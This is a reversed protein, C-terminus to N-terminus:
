DVAPVERDKTRVASRPPQSKIDAVCYELMEPTYTSWDGELQKGFESKFVGIRYGWSELSHRGYLHGPMNAPRARLDKDLMDNFFLRSLILTDYVKCRPHFYPVLSQIAPIDFGWLNHGWLEDAEMLFTLGEHIPSERGSDDFRYVAGLDIDMVVLCHIVSMQRLLGDTEIDFLLRM